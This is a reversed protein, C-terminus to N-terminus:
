SGTKNRLSFNENWQIKLLASLVYKNRPGSVLTPPVSKRKPLSQLEVGEGEDDSFACM